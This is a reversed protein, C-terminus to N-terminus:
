SYSFIALIPYNDTLLPCHERKEMSVSLIGPHHPCSTFLESVSRRATHFVQFDQCVQSVLGLLKIAFRSLLLIVQLSSQKAPVIKHTTGDGEIKRACQKGCQHCICLIKHHLPLIGETEERQTLLPASIPPPSPYFNCHGRKQWALDNPYFWRTEM